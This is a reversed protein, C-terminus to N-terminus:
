PASRPQRQHGPRRRGPPQTTTQKRAQAQEVLALLARALKRYDRKQNPIVRIQIDGAM